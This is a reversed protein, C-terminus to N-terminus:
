AQVPWRSFTKKLIQLQLLLQIQRQSTLDVDQFETSPALTRPQLHVFFSYYFFSSLSDSCLKWKKRVGRESKCPPEKFNKKKVRSFHVAVTRNVVRSIECSSFRLRSRCELQTHLSTINWCDYFHKIVQHIIHPVFLIPAFYSCTKKRIFSCINKCWQIYYYTWRTLPKLDHSEPLLQFISDWLM